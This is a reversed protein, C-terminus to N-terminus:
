HTVCSTGAHSFYLSFDLDEPTYASKVPQLSQKVLPTAHAQQWDEPVRQGNTLGRLVLQHRIAADLAPGLKSSEDTKTLIAQQPGRTRFAHVVEDHMEGQSCANLVFLKQLKPLNLTSLLDRTRPDRPSLGTTDILVMKKSALLSLLDHLAAQDHALHAVVGMLKGYARLQDHGGIRYTDLTILGVSATGFERACMGALKAATTTKGVGTAGILAFVGGQQVLTATNSDTKLNRELVQRVWELAAPADQDQPLKDVIARSLHASYGAGILKTMLNNRVPSKRTDGLWALTSFREEILAKMSQLEDSIGKSALLDSAPVVAVPEARAPSEEPERTPIGVQPKMQSSPSIRAPAKSAQVDPPISLLEKRRKLMRDRVYDQFSLTSMSLQQADEEVTSQASTGHIASRLVSSFTNKTASNIAELDHDAGPADHTMAEVDDESAALVEVGHPTPRNSLILTKDGFAMKAKALAQRATPAYFRQLNM